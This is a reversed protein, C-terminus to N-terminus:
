PSPGGEQELLLDVVWCGLVHASGQERLHSLIDGSDCGAQELADALVGLLTADLTGSPLQRELYAREALARVTPTRWSPDLAVSRFPLPGFLDRLLDAQSARWRTSAADLGGGGAPAGTQAILVKKEPPHLAAECAELAARYADTSTTATAACAQRYQWLVDGGRNWLIMVANAAKRADGRARSLANDQSDDDAYREAAEVAKRSREDTLLHWVRRVCACAFLRLRRDSPKASTRLWELMAQPEHARLWDSETM